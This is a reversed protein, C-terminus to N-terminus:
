GTSSSTSRTRCAGDGRRHSVEYITLTLTDGTSVGIQDTDLFGARDFFFSKLAGNFEDFFASYEFVVQSLFSALTPPGILGSPPLGFKSGFIWYLIWGSVIKLKPIIVGTEVAGCFSKVAKALQLGEQVFNKWGQAVPWGVVSTAVWHAFTVLFGCYNALDVVGGVGYLPVITNIANRASTRFEIKSPKFAVNPEIRLQVKKTM